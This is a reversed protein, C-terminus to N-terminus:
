RGKSVGVKIACLPLGSENPYKVVIYGFISFFCFFFEVTSKLFVSVKIEQTSHVTLLLWIGLVMCILATLYLFPLVTNAALMPTWAPLRQQKFASNDPRQSLPGVRVKGM